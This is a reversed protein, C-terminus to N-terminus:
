PQNIRLSMDKFKIQVRSMIFLIFAFLAVGGVVYLIQRKSQTKRRIEREKMLASSGISTITGLQKTELQEKWIKVEISNDRFDSAGPILQEAKRHWKVEAKLYSNEPLSTLEQFSRKLHIQVSRGVLAMMEQFYERDIGNLNKSFISSSKFRDIDKNIKQNPLSFREFWEKFPSLEAGDLALEKLALADKLKVIEFSFNTTLPAAYSPEKLYFDNFTEEMKVIVKKFIGESIIISFAERNKEFNNEWNKERQTLRNDTVNSLNFTAPFNM